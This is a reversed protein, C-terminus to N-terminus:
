SRTVNEPFELKNVASLIRPEYLDFVGHPDIDLKGLIDIAETKPTRWMQHALHNFKLMRREDRSLEDMRGVNTARVRSIHENQYNVYPTLSEVQVARFLRRKNSIGLGLRQGEGTIREMCGRTENDTKVGTQEGGKRYELGAALWISKFMALQEWLAANPPLPAQM